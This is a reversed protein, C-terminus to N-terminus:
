RPLVRLITLIPVYGALAEIARIAPHHARLVLRIDLVAVVALLLVCVALAVGIPAEVHDLPLVHYLALVAAATALARILAITLLRRRQRATFLSGQAM